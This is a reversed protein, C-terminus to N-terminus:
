DQYIVESGKLSISFNYYKLFSLANIIKKHHSAPALFLFFGGGGAGLIKGGWAGNKYAIKIVDDINKNSINDAMNMKIKWSEKIIEGCTKIDNNILHTKFDKALAVIEDILSINSKNKINENQTKLIKSASRNIGTHFFLLSDQLLKLSNSDKLKTIQVNNNKKFELFNLGGVSAAYQDQFGIPEKCLEVEVKCAMKALQSGNLSKGQMTSLANILGVTYSSSSGLGSGFSPIDATSSVSLGNNVNFYDLCKRVIPHKIDSIDLVNETVSYSIRYDGEFKPNVAVYMYRDISTSLVCGDSHNNFYTPFDSGGGVFSVRFPTKTIIM